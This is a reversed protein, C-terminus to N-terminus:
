TAIGILPVAMEEPSSGGHVGLHRYRKEGPLWDKLTWDEKMLLVFDGLRSALRPNPQGPGLWGQILFEERTLLQCAHAMRERVYAVFDQQRAPEVYAYAIRQEGCLPRALLAALEPHDDLEILRDPPADIFGHDATVLFVTGSGALREVCAALQQDFAQFYTMVREDRTGYEHMLSDLAPYYAHIYAPHPGRQTGSAAVAQEIGTFLGDLARYPLPTSGRNFHRNFPSRVIFDPAVTWCRGALALSLPPTDFLRPPLDAAQWEPGVPRRPTLPLSALIEGIEEFWMHWGTLGHVAPPQGTLFTPIAAATTSPFVSTLEARCHRSLFSDPGLADLQTKGLGDVVLLVIQRATRLTDQNLGSSGHLPAYGTSPLGLAQGLSAMLNLLSSGSYDPQIMM